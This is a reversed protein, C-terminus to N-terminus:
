SYDICEIVCDKHIQYVSGRLYLKALALMAQGTCFM